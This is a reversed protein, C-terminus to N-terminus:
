PDGLTHNFPDEWRDTNKTSNQSSKEKTQKARNQNTQKQKM